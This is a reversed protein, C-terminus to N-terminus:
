EVPMENHSAIEIARDIDGRVPIDSLIEDPVDFSRRPRGPGLTSHPKYPSKGQKLWKLAYHTADTVNGRCQSSLLRAVRKAFGGCRTCWAWGQMTWLTHQGEPEHDWGAFM